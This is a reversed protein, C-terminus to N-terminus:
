NDAKHKTIYQVLMEVSSIKMNYKKSFKILDNIKAMTGDKNIIECIVVCLKLKALKAIDIAAETHGRRELVGNKKALIPFIHGPVKFDEITSKESTLRKITNVKDAASIGTSGGKKSDISYTFATEHHDINRRPHLKLDFKNAINDDIAVCILGRASLMMFKIIDESIFQAPIFIDGENERNEDDTMIFPKGLKAENIIDKISNFM